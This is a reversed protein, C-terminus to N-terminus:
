DQNDGLNDIDENLKDFLARLKLLEPDCVTKAKWLRSGYTFHVWDDRGVRILHTDSDYVFNESSIHQTAGQFDTNLSELGCEQLLARFYPEFICEFGASEADTDMRGSVACALCKCDPGGVKQNAYQMSERLNSAGYDRWFLKLKLEQNEALLESVRQDAFIKSVTILKDFASVCGHAAM